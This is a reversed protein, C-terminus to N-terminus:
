APPRGLRGPLTVTFATGDNLRSEVEVTAGILRASQRVIPLGMGTGPRDGVNSARYFPSFLEALEEEPVGIGQDIVVFKPIDHRTSLAVRIETGRPSYKAANQLLNIIIYHLHTADTTMWFHGADSAVSVQHERGDNVRFWQVVDTLARVLDLREARYTGGGPYYKGFKGFAM